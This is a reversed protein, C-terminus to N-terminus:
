RVTFFEASTLLTWLFDQAIDEMQETTQVASFVQQWYRLEEDGPLRSYAKQYFREILHESSIGSQINKM